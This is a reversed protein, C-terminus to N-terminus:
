GPAGMRVEKKEAGVGLFLYLNDRDDSGSLEGGEQGEQCSGSERLMALARGLSCFQGCHEMAGGERVMRESGLSKTRRARCTPPSSPNPTPLPKPRTQNEKEWYCLTTQLNSIIYQFTGLLPGLAAIARTKDFLGGLPGGGPRQARPMGLDSALEAPLEKGVAKPATEGM